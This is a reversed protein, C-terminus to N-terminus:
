NLRTSRLMKLVNRQNIEDVDVFPRIARSCPEVRELKKHVGPTEILHEFVIAKDKVEEKAEQKNKAANRTQSEM